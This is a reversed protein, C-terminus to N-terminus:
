REVVHEIPGKVFMGLVKVPDRFTHLCHVMITRRERLTLRRHHKRLGGYRAFGAQQDSSLYLWEM